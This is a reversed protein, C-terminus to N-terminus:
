IQKKKSSSQIWDILDVNFYWALLENVWFINLRSLTPITFKHNKLFFHEVIHFLLFWIRIIEIIHTYVCKRRFLFFNSLFKFYHLSHYYIERKEQFCSFIWIKLLQYWKWRDFFNTYTSTTKKKSKKLNKKTEERKKKVIKFYFATPDLLKEKKIINAWKWYEFANNM